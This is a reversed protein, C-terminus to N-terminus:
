SNPNYPTVAKENITPNDAKPASNGFTNGPLKAAAEWVADATAEADRGVYYRLTTDISEHRMLQQLVIPMVRTSWRAGFARRLDHASAFKIKGKASTNVKVNAKAGIESIVASVWEMARPDEKDARRSKPAFVPGTRDAVPTAELFEAFDPTMPLLRDQNGKEMDARILFMPRRGSFDACIKDDRDWYLDLAEGLRLGSLYLGRLLRDWSAVVQSKRERAADDDAKAEKIKLAKPIAAIMRDFEEGTIARGKMVKGGKDRKPMKVTPVATIMKMEVAWALAAKIHSLYSRITAESLEAERLKAQYVSLRDESVDRLRQPNVHTELSNFATGCISFTADAFSALVEAEYRERFRAWTVKEVNAAYNENLKKELDNAAREALKLRQAKTKEDRAVGSSRTRKRSTIPDTWQLQYHKRDGFEVVRVKIEDFM